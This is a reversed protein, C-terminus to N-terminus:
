ATMGFEVSLLRVVEAPESPACPNRYRAFAECNASSKSFRASRNSAVWGIKFQPYRRSAAGGSRVM